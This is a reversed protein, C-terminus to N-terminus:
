RLLLKIISIFITVGDSVVTVKKFLSLLFVSFFTFIRYKVTLLFISISTSQSLYCKHIIISQSVTFAICLSYVSLDCIHLSWLSININSINLYDILLFSFLFLFSLWFVFLLITSTLGLIHIIVKYTLWFVSNPLFFSCLHGSLTNNVCWQCLYTSVLLM